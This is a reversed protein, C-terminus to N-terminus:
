KGEHEDSSNLPVLPRDEVVPFRNKWPLCIKLERSLSRTDRNSNALAFSITRM